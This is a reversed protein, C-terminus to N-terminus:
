VSNPARHNERQPAPTPHAIALLESRAVRRRPDEVGEGLTVLRLFMQQAAEQGAPNLENYVEEARRALAGVAGGIEQYAAQTLVRGSRREFLETLAYQLLPLAGTQYNMESVISAVLGEEFTVGVREAPGVIARELGKASLPLVTEMRSRVLEGFEPYQLP